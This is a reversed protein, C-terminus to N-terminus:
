TVTGNVRLSDGSIELYYTHVSYPPATTTGFLKAEMASRPLTLALDASDMGAYVILFAPVNLDGVLIGNVDTHARQALAVAQTLHSRMAGRRAAIERAKRVWGDDEAFRFARPHRALLEYYAPPPKAGGLARGIAEVDSQARAAAPTLCLAAAAAVALSGFARMRHRTM